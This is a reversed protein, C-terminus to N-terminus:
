LAGTSSIIRNQDIPLISGPESGTAIIFHKARITKVGDGEVQVTHQDRFRGAGRIYDVNNKKFLMEIGKTLSDAVKNKKEMIKSFEFKVNDAM